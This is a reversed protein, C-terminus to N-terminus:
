KIWNQLLIYTSPDFTVNKKFLKKIENKKFCCIKRHGVEDGVNMMPEKPLNANFCAINADIIGPEPYFSTLLSIDKIKCVCGLEEELERLASSKPNKDNKEVMGRPVEYILKNIPYRKLLLLYVTDKYIPLISVGTIKKKFFHRIKLYDKVLSNNDRIDFFEIIFKTNKAVIRKNFIGM